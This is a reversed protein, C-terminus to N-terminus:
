GGFERRILRHIDMTTSFEIFYAGPHNGQEARVHPFKRRFVEWVKGRQEATDFRLNGKTSIVNEPKEVVEYEILDLQPSCDAGCPCALSGTTVNVAKFTGNGQQVAGALRVLTSDGSRFWTGPDMAGIRQKM